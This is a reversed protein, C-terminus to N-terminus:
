PKDWRTEQTIDNQYYMRGDPTVATRWGHPLVEGDMGGQVSQPQQVYQVQQPQQIVIQPQPQQTVYQVQQPQQIVVPQTPVPQYQVPQQQITTQPVVVQVTQAQGTGTDGGESAICPVELTTPDVDNGKCLKEYDIYHVKLKTLKGSENKKEKKWKVKFCCSLLCLSFLWGFLNTLFFSLIFGGLVGYEIALWIFILLWFFVWCTWLCMLCHGICEFLSRCHNSCSNTQCCPCIAIYKLLGNSIAKLLGNFISFLIQIFIIGGTSTPESDTDITDSDYVEEPDRMAKIICATFISLCAAFGMDAIFVVLREGRSFPHEKPATCISYLPHYNKIFAHWDSKENNYWVVKKHILDKRFAIKARSLGEGTGMDNPIETPNEGRKSLVTNYTELDM